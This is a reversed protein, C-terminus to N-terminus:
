YGGGLVLYAGTIGEAALGRALGLRVTFPLQYALWIEARLEGGVSPQLGRFTLADAAEGVDSVVAGQLRRLYAPLLQLGRDLDAIPFRYEASGLVYRNGRFRGGPYGRLGADGGQGNILALIPDAVSPGGLTFLKRGLLEGGGAGGEARLALIQHKAWPMRLYGTSGATVERYSFAGGVYPSAVRGGVRATFGEEASIGNASGRASSWSAGAGLTGATGKRPFFPVPEDPLLVPQYLPEYLRLEYDAGFSLGHDIWSVPVQISFDLASQRELAGQPGGALFHIGREASASLTPYLTHNSYGASGAFERSSFGYRLEAAYQHKGLIDGGSTLAGIATGMPEATVIPLWYHPLITPWVSYPRAPFTVSPDDRYPPEPREARPPPAEPARELDLPVVAVDFGRASFSTFALLKGDPSVEPRVAGTEVNTLQRTPGGDLPLAYINFAGSRDSAFIVFRGSPDFTPELDLAPDRTLERVAGTSLDLLRLDRWPGHHESFVLLKGDPSFRPTYVQDDREATYVIRPAGGTISVLALAMQGAGQNIAVAVQTGDPSLDPGRARLGKSIRTSEGTRLDYRWLDTYVRFQHFVEARALVAFTGDPSVALEEASPLKAIHRDDAGDTSVSRLEPPRDASKELYVLRAGGPLFRAGGTSEGARTLNRYATVPRRRIEALEADLRATYATRWREYLEAFSEGMTAKSSLNLAFPILRGGYDHSYAALADPGHEDAAFQVLRSGYLYPTAGRPFATPENSLVDLRFLGGELRQARLYM